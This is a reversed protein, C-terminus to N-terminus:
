AINMGLHFQIQICRNRYKSFPFPGATADFNLKLLM